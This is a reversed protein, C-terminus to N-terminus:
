ITWISSQFIRVYKGIFIVFDKGAVWQIQVEEDLVSSSPLLSTWAESGTCQQVAKSPVYLTGAPWNYPQFFHLFLIRIDRLLTTFILSSINGLLKFVYFVMCSRLANFILALEQWCLEGTRCEQATRREQASDRRQLHENRTKSECVSVQWHKAFKALM